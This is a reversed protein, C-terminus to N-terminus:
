IEMKILDNLNDMYGANKAREILGDRQRKLDDLQRLLQARKGHDKEFAFDKATTNLRNVVDSYKPRSAVNEPIGGAEPGLDAMFSHYREKISQTLDTSLTGYHDM